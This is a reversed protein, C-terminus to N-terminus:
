FRKLLRIDIDFVIQRSRGDERRVKLVSRGKNGEKSCLVDLLCRSPRPHEGLTERPKKGGSKLSWYFRAAVLSSACQSLDVRKRVTVSELM